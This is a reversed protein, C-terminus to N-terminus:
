DELFTQELELQQLKYAIKLFNKRHRQYFTNVIRDLVLIGDEYNATPLMMVFQAGSYRSIIDGRRLNDRLVYLLQEMTTNLLGLAPTCGNPLSITILAVHVCSGQRAARRAELRYAERFFGYECVFAGPRSATERLDNQIIGLDTELNKQEKMIEQYLSRLEESPKVGLNRYLLDTATEYHNLAAMSNGLKLLAKIQLAHLEEDYPEVQIAALSIDAVIDYQDDEELLSAYTMVGKIYLSHYYSALPIVWLQDSLKMLFDHQYLAIAEAYLEKRKERKLDPETAKQILLAFDEADVKCDISRNWSYSGRQSLILQPEDGILPLLVARTRYLLTKLASAPNQSDEDPWLVDILEKQPVNRDRNIILYALLNWMKQSRSIDDGLVVNGIYIKFDGLMEVRIGSNIDFFTAPPSNKAM